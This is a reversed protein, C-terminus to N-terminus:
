DIIQILTIESLRLIGPDINDDLWICAEGYGSDYESEFLIVKAERERGNREILRVKHNMSEFLVKSDM